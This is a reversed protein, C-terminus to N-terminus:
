LFAQVQTAVWLTSIQEMCEHQPNEWTQGPPTMCPETALGSIRPSDKHCPSCPLGAWINCATPYGFGTPDTSGFLIVAKQKLIGAAHNTFSDVGMHLKADAILGIAQPITTKGRFDITGAVHPDSLTGIQIVRTSITAVVAEWREIKWNKYPSWLASPHFTIYPPGYKYVNPLKKFEVPQYEVSADDCFYLSLHKKLPKEDYGRFIIDLGKTRTGWLDSNLVLDVGRILDAAQFIKTYYNIHSVPYKKKLGAIAPATALVDGIAGPRLVNITM